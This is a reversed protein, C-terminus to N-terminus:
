SQCSLFIIPIKHTKRIIEAAQIGDIGKGLDIDMLILDIKQNRVIEIAKDGTGAKTIIFGYDSLKYENAAAIILQDEVILLNYRPHIISGKIFIISADSHLEKLANDVSEIVIEKDYRPDKIDVLCELNKLLIDTKERFGSNGMYSNNLEYIVSRLAIFIKERDEHKEENKMRDLLTQIRRMYLITKEM